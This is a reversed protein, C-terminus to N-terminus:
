MNEVLLTRFPKRRLQKAAGSAILIVAIARLLMLTAVLVCGWEIRPLFRGRAALSMMFVAMVFLSGAGLWPLFFIRFYTKLFGSIPTKSKLGTWIGFGPMVMWDLIGNLGIGGLLIAFMVSEINSLSRQSFIDVFLSMGILVYYGSLLGSTKLLHNRGTNLQASLLQESRISTSLLLELGGSRRDESIRDFLHFCAFFKLIIDACIAAMLATVFAEDDGDFFIYLLLSIGIVTSVIWIFAPMVWTNTKLRLILWHCPNQDLLLRSQSRDRFPTRSYIWFGKVTPLIRLVKQLVRLIAQSFWRASLLLLRVFERIVGKGGRSEQGLESTNKSRDVVATEIVKRDRHWDRKLLICSSVLFGVAMSFQIAVAGWYPTMGWRGRFLDLGFPLIFIPSFMAVGTPESNIDLIEEQIFLALLPLLIILLMAVVASIYVTKLERGLVSVWLGVASSLFLVVVLALISRWIEWWVVGGNLIPLCFIPFMAAMSSFVLISNSFLKGLIVDRFDLDTLFLLGLTDDRQESSLCDATVLCGAFACFFMAVGSSMYLMALSLDRGAWHPNTLPIMGASLCVGAYMVRLRFTLRKRSYVRLDRLVQPLFGM